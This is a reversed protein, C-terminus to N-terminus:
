YKMLYKTKSSKITGVKYRKEKFYKIIEEDKIIKEFSKRGIDLIDMVDQCTIRKKDWESELFTIFMDNMGNVAKKLKIKKHQEENFIYIGNSTTHVYYLNAELDKKFTNWTAEKKDFHISAYMDVLYKRDDSTLKKGLYKEELDIGIYTSGLTADTWILERYQNHEFIRGEEDTIVTYVFFSIDQRVRNRAQVQTDYDKSDVMVYKVKKDRLNWGTEYGGNVIIVELNDPLIGDQLLKERLKLQNDNMTPIIENDDNVTKNNISCLWEVKYGYKQLQDKYKKSMSITNTYIFVKFDHEKIYSRMTGLRKIENMMNSCRQIAGNKYARIEKLEKSNFLFTM